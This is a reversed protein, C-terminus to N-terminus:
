VCHLFIIDQNDRKMLENMGNLDSAMVSAGDSGLGVVKHMDFTTSSRSLSRPTTCQRLKEM